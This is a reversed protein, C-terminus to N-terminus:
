SAKKHQLNQKQAKLSEIRGKMNDIRKTLSEIQDDIVRPDSTVFYGNGAGIIVQDELDEVLGKKLNTTIIYSLIKRVREEGTSYRCARLYNSLAKSTITSTETKYKLCDIILPAIVTKELDTLEDAINRFLTLAM